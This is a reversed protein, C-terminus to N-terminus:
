EQAVHCAVCAAVASFPDTQHDQPREPSFAEMEAHCATCDMRRELVKRHASEFHAYGTRPKAIAAEINHCSNCTASSTRGVPRPRAQRIAGAAELPQPRRSSDAQIARAAVRGMLVCSGLFTGELSWRGNLGGQGTLEGVAFLGPIPKDDKNLVHCTYDVAVGGMSKRTIPFYQVAYFPPTSIPRPLVPMLAVKAPADLLVTEVFPKAVRGARFRGFDEDEGRDVMSNYRAMTESLARAPLGCARALEEISSASKVLAPNDFILEQIKAFTAFDTGAVAFDRKAAEDFIAWCTAGQQELLAPFTFKPGLIENVFRNGEANVWVADQHSVHIGRRGGPYRPDPVADTYNWQHDLRKVTGGAKRALDMGSGVSNVGSGLLLRPPFPITRPWFERILDLNSQFGGTALVVAGQAELHITNGTRTERCRVGSVRGAKVTLEKVEVNWRFRIRPNRLCERYLPSVLGLGRGRTLHTRPVTNGPFKLVKEFTVGLATLWAYIDDSSHRVYYDVWAPDADEGWSMFDRSATEPSDGIGAARQAPTGVMSVAGGAMVAHGGFVSWLDVVTVLAGSRAAELACSLGSLGAGVVLVDAEAAAPTFIGAEPAREEACGGWAGLLVALLLIRARNRRYATM